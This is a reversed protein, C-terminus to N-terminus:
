DILARLEYWRKRVTTVTVGAADAVVAQTYLQGHEHGAVYVCAAALGGPHRGNSLGVAEGQKALAFARVRVAEIADVGSLVRSVYGALDGVPVGLDLERNLLRYGAELEHQSCHAVETVEDLTRNLGGCRCAAYVSAATLTDISRGVLMGSGQVERYVASARDRVRYSLDLAAAIRAIQGFADALNRDAKSPFRTRNHQRRLRDFGPSDTGNWDSGFGIETSLGWDHRAVTLPAGVREPESGNEEFWRWEPGRDLRDEFVVLGCDPCYTEGAATWTQGTCEPCRDHPTRRGTSRVEVTLDRTAM